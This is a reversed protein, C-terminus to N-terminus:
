PHSNVARTTWHPSNTVMIRATACLWRLVVEQQADGAAAASNIGTEFHKDLTVFPDSPGGRLIYAALTETCKAWNYLAMLRLAIKCNSAKSGNQLLRAEYVNQDVRLGVITKGISELDDRGRKRFLRIWCDFLRYLLIHDWEAGEESPAKLIDDGQEGYWDLLDSSCNGCYAIASLRLVLFLRDHTEEPVPLLRLIQFARFSAAVAQDRLHRNNAIPHSLQGLGEIAALEFALAVRGLYPLNESNEAISFKAQKGEARRVLRQNVIIDARELEDAGIAAVAWHENLAELETSSPSM